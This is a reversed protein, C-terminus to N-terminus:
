FRTGPREQADTIDPDGARAKLDQKSRIPDLRVTGGGGQTRWQSVGERGQREAGVLMWELQRAVTTEM